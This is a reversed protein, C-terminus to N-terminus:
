TDYRLPIARTLFFLKVENRGLFKKNGAELGSTCTKPTAGFSYYSLTYVTLSSWMLVVANIYM